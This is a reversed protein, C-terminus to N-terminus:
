FPGGHLDGEDMVPEDRQAAALAHQLGEALQEGVRVEVGEDVAGAGLRGEDLLPADVGGEELADGADV